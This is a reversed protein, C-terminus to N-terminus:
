NIQYNQVLKQIRSIMRNLSDSNLRAKDINWNNIIFPTLASNYEKGKKAGNQPIMQDKFEKTRSNPIIERVMYYSSKYPFKMEFYYDKKNRIRQPVPILDISVRFYDSFSTRDAMLWAEAEDNAINLVFHDSKTTGQFFQQLVIPACDKEDLDMLLIVPYSESLSNYNLINQKIQGGRSPLEMLIEFSNSCYLLVRKIIEKTAEDEGVIYVKM